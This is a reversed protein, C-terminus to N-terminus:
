ETEEESSWSAGEAESEESHLLGGEVVNSGLVQKVETHEQEEKAALATSSDVDVRSNGNVVNSNELNGLALNDGFGLNENTQEAAENCADPQYTAGTDWFDNSLVSSFAECLSGNKGNTNPQESAKVEFIGEEGPASDPSIELPEQKHTMIVEDSSRDEAPEHANESKGPVVDTVETPAAVEQLNQLLTSHPDETDPRSIFDDFDDAAVEGTAAAERKEPADLASQDGHQSEEEARTTTQPMVVSDGFHLKESNQDLITTSSTLEQKVGVDPEACSSIDETSSDKGNANPQESAKVEFIDEEGPASDPSIELPEQKHTMIVEDSGRDEAPEHANESKQDRIEFDESPSQDWEATEPVDPSQQSDEVLNEPSENAAEVPVVDTVETPAAVEQLNQLLTSHPDETDSSIFDSFDDAAVEGTAAAERKEPADLASQDGHQSEEEALTTTQPMVVSDGFHLKESHQDLITTSSTLEQKVGVDSEACSSIDGTKIKGDEEQETVTEVSEGQLHLKEEDESVQQQTFHASYSDTCLNDLEKEVRRDTELEEGQDVNVPKTLESTEEHGEGVEKIGEEANKTDNVSTGYETVTLHHGADRDETHTYGLDYEEDLADGEAEECLDEMTGFTKSKGTSWTGPGMEGVKKEQEGESSESEDMHLAQTNADTEDSKYRILPRTDALTNDQAYSDSELETRWSVSVNQSDEEDEEEEKDPLLVLEQDFEAHQIDDEAQTGMASSAMNDDQRETASDQRIGGKGHEPERASIDEEPEAHQRKIEDMQIGDDMKVDAKREIVSDWTDMEEGDPYLGDEGDAENKGEMSCSIEQRMEVADDDSIIEGQSFDTMQNLVSDELACESAPSSTRSEFNPELVAETESDSTEEQVHEAETCEKNVWADAPTQPQQMDETEAPREFPVDNGSEDSLGCPKEDVRIHSPPLSATTFQCQSVEDNFAPETSLDSEAQYSVASEVAPRGEPTEVDEEDEKDGSTKAPAEQESPPSLAEAHAVTDHVEQPRFNEVAEDQLIKPYPSKWKAFMAVDTPKRYPTADITTPKRNCVPTASTVAPRKVTISRVSSLSTTKHRPSLQTQYSQKGALPSFVADTISINRPPNLLSIGEGDLLARYMAVELGLSKKLQLLGRNELVMQDIQQGLEEKEVELGELQEQFQQTEQSHRDKQEVASKELHLRIDQASTLEKELAQLKLQSENKEQAVQTLHSRAQNLSEELHALQGQHAEAVEQWARSARQSCEQELQLLSPTHNGRQALTPPVTVRTHALTDELHAVDEEHTHILLRMEHELESVKERLWIQARQEEELEKRSHELMINAKVQAQAETERQLALGQLEETLRGVELEAHVRDRWAADVELRAQQLEEKLGKRLASAEHKNCRLAQIEKALLVNEEELLKVRSLYTELRRNLSLMQHKEEGLHGHHFTNHVNHLEM